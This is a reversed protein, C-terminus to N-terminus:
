SKKAGNPVCSAGRSGPAALGSPQRSQMTAPRVAAAGKRRTAGDNAPDFKGSREVSDQDGAVPSEAAATRPRVLIEGSPHRFGRGGHQNAGAPSTRVVWLM